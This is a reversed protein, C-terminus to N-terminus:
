RVPTGPQATAIQSMPLELAFLNSEGQDAHVWIGHFAQRLEPHQALLATMLETVQQRATVPTRLQSTQTPDPTYHLDLDLGGFDTSTAMNVVNFAAGNANVTM